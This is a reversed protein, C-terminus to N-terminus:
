VHRVAVVNRMVWFLLVGRVSAEPFGIHPVLVFYDQRKGFQRCHSALFTAAIFLLFM